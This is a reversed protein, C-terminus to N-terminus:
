KQRRSRKPRSRDYEERLLGFEVIDVYKGDKYAAERRVGEKRMGLALALKKMALNTEFTACAIRRLNLAKFGHTILLRGAEMGYGKGWHSREGLLISFEASRYVPHLRQLAVNGIHQDGEKLVVALVLDDNTRTSQQIYELALQKSYPFRHHSNGMCVAADNLWAPYPGDADDESLPRLYLRSGELFAASASPPMMDSKLRAVKV